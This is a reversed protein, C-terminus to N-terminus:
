NNPGIPAKLQVVTGGNAGPTIDFEGRVDALRKRMNKMGNRLSKGSIDGLGRGNDTVTLIFKDPELQLKVRAETAQAHKVVNNVAEKFALFVNHRVEPLIPTAPLNAPLEARFSVKALAFYEQAYKCAYNALGELTDNSPNVAWVIEDLAHTTERATDCIQQAHQAVEEPLDKDAEAMEGLLTVQTLNAGLQDHLDRAIRAREKEILEKQHLARLERKLKATSILYIVGALVGIFILACVIIFGPKRWFPPEVTIALTAGTENWVGDENCAK